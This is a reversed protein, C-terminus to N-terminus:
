LARSSTRDHPRQDGNEDDDAKKDDDEDDYEDPHHGPEVGRGGDGSLRARLRAILRGAIGIGHPARGLCLGGLDPM